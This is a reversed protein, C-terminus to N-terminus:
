LNTLDKLGLASLQTALVADPMIRQRWLIVIYYYAPKIPIAILLVPTGINSHM